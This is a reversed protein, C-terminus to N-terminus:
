LMVVSVAASALKCVASTVPLWDFSPRSLTLRDQFLLMEIYKLINIHQDIRVVKKLHVNPSGARQRTFKVVFFHQDVLQM